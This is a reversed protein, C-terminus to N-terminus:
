QVMPLRVLASQSFMMITAGKIKAPLRIMTDLERSRLAMISPSAWARSRPTSTFFTRRCSSTAEASTVAAATDKTPTMPKTPRTTGWMRLISIPGSM